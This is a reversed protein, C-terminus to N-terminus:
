RGYSSTGQGAAALRLGGHSASDPWDNARGGRKGWNSTVKKLSHNPAHIMMEYRRTIKRAPGLSFPEVVRLRGVTVTESWQGM